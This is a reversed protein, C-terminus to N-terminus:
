KSQQSAPQMSALISKRVYIDFFASHYRIAYNQHFARVFEDSFVSDGPSYWDSLTYPNDGRPILVVDAAGSRWRETTAEPLGHQDEASDIAAAPDLSYPNGSFVLVPREYTDFYSLDGGVGMEITRDPIRDTINEIDALRTAGIQSIIGMNKHLLHGQWGAYVLAVLVIPLILWHRIVIYQSPAAMSWAWAIMWCVVPLLPLLHHAGAGRKAAVPLTVLIAAGLAGATM